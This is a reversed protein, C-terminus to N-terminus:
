RRRRLRAAFAGDTDHVHPLTAVFGEPSVVAPPVWPRGPSPGGRTAAATAQPPGTASELEFDPHRELFARVRQQDEEEEISCTSYVMVGGPAVLSAAADLLEDQLATLEQLQEPTRRWRLDARKALVGTGTCPADLLVKDYLLAEPKRVRDRPAGVREWELDDGPSAGRETSAAAAATAASGDPPGMEAQWAARERVQRAWVRLDAAHATVMDGVGAREAARRLAGLRPASVDLATISGRGRMRAAAFLTKGGPAACCDLLREGPQPDLLSVVLGASEDQVFLSGDSVFGEALLKQLGSRIRIFEGPLLPSPEAVVGAATLRELLEDSHSSAAAAAAASSSSSSSGAGPTLPTQMMTNIRVTYVPPENNRRLLAEAGERGFRELWRSVMWNPHSHQLALKRLADRASSSGGAAKAGDGGADASARSEPTPLTGAELRRAASRLVGNVFSGAGPGSVVKALQVHENLAHPALRRETLEFVGLRLVQRLESEMEAPTQQSLNSVIYDLRRRLRTVGAVLEKILRQDRPDLPVERPGRGGSERRPRWTSGEGEGEEEEEELSGGPGSPDDEAPAARGPRLGPSGNVLGVYAGEEEVRVLQQVAQYRPSRAMRPDVPLPEWYTPPPPPERSQRGDYLTRQRRGNADLPQRDRGRNGGGRDRDRRPGDDWDRAGGRDRGRDRANDYGGDRPERIREGRVSDTRRVYDRSGPEGDSRAGQKPPPPNEEVPPAPAPAKQATRPRLVRQSFSGDDSQAAPIVDRSVLIRPRPVQAAVGLRGPPEPPCKLLLTKM